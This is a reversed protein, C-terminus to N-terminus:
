QALYLAASTNSCHLWDLVKITSDLLAVAIYRADPSIRVCLVDDAM